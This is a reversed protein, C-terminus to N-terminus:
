DKLFDSIELGYLMPNIKIIGILYLTFSAVSSGRGVGWVVKRRRFEDVLFMMLRLLPVLGRREYEAREMELRLRQAGDTCRGQLEAWVDLDLYKDSMFWRTQRQEHDEEPSISKPAAIPILHGLKDNLRCLENYRTIEDSAEALIDDTLERGEYLLTIMEDSSLVVRGYDDVTM